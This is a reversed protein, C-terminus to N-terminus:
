RPAGTVGAGLGRTVEFSTQGADHEVVEVGLGCCGKHTRIVGHAPCM